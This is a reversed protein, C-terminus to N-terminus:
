RMSAHLLHGLSELPLLELRARGLQELLVVRLGRATRKKDLAALRLAEDLPETSLDTPLGLGALQAELRQAVESPTIGLAVGVRLIAVMGLSVAEGHTLRGFGGAAELGHGLTHGFNLLAREGSEREDRTVIATKVRVARLVVERVLELDRALVKEVSQALLDLLSPDGIAGAKVVEALGSVYDRQSQTRVYAPDIVVGSPQHFAGVANKAVGLDVGTKGGVAADVMSLLTTPIAIWRVGRLLTAAAFGAIDSVVGGGLAVVVAERDAGAEVLTRLIQEVAPLQKHVEGPTLVVQARPPFGAAALAQRLAAAALPEVNEDTVVFTASPALTKCLEAVAEPADRTVRVAYSRQGLPVVLAPDSWVRLVVEAVAEPSREDTQVQAHAEAYAGRRAALLEQVRAHRDSAEDLLPRGPAAARAAITESRATLTVVQGHALAFARLTPDVLTGGGLAIVRPGPLALQRRLAEAELARFAAEGSDSFILTIPCGADEEILADLDVFPVGAREAVLRGVTSKGTAMFGSLLLPM